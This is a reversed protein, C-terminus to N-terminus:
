LGWGPACSCGRRAGPGEPRAPDGLSHLPTAKWPGARPWPSLGPDGAATKASCLFVEEKRPPFFNSYKPFPDLNTSLFSEEPPFPRKLFLVCFFRVVARCAGRRQGRASRPESAAM